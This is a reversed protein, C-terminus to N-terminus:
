LATAQAIQLGITCEKAFPCDPFLCDVDVLEGSNRDYEILVMRSADMQRCYGSIMKEETM